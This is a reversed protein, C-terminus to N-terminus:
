KCVLMNIWCYARMYVEFNYVSLDVFYNIMKSYDFEIVLFSCWCIYIYIIINKLTGM